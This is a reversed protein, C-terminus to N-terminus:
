RCEPRSAWWPSAAARSAAAPVRAQRTSVGAGRGASSAGPPSTPPAPARGPTRGAGAPARRTAAPSAARMRRRRRHGVRAPRQRPAKSATGTSATSRSPVGAAVSNRQRRRGIVQRPQRHQLPAARRRRAHNLGAAHEDVTHVGTLDLGVVDDGTERRM